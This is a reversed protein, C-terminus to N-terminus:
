EITNGLYGKLISHRKKKFVDRKPELPIGDSVTVKVTTTGKGTEPSIWPINKGSIGSPFTGVPCEWSYILEDGDANAGFWVNTGNGIAPPTVSIELVVPPNNTSEEVGNSCSLFVLISVLLFYTYLNLIRNLIM